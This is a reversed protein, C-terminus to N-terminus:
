KSQWEKAMGIVDFASLKELPEMGNMVRMVNVAEKVVGHDEAGLYTKIIPKESETAVYRLLRLGAAKVENGDNAMREALALACEGSRAFPLAKSVLEVHSAWDTRTIELLQLLADKDKRAALGLTAFLLTQEDADKRFPEFASKLEPDAMLCLRRLLYKRLEIKKKKAQEAMLARHEETLMEDFVLYLEENLALEKEADGVKQFLVPAAGAGMALMESRAATRVAEDDKKLQGTLVIARDRDKAQLAPWAALPKKAGTTSAASPPPADKTEQANATPSAIPLAFLLLALSSIRLDSM